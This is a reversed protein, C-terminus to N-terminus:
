NKFSIAGVPCVKICYGCEDCKGGNIVVDGYLVVIANRPYRTTCFLCHDNRCLANDIALKAEVVKGATDASNGIGGVVQDDNALRTLGTKAHEDEVCVLKHKKPFLKTFLNMGNM